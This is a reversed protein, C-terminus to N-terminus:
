YISFIQTDTETVRVDYRSGLAWSNPMGTPNYEGKGM